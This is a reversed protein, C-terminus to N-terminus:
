YIYYSNHIEDNHQRENSSCMNHIDTRFRNKMEVFDCIIFKSYLLCM